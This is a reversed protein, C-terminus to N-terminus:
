LNLYDEFTSQQLAKARELAKPDIDGKSEISVKGVNDYLFQNTSNVFGFGDNFSFYAWSKTKPDFIDKSWKYETSPIKLQNLLTKALDTQSFVKNVIRPKSVAGGTWLMPIKFDAARAELEPFKHGHDGLIIVLTNNWWSSKQAEEIFAKLSQDSYRLSNFFLAEETDSEFISKLPVEYPQHSSLTLITSFFPKSKSFNHDNNFRQFVLHDHVGWKSYASDEPFAHVDYINQLDANFLYSKINAFETEGGYYFETQYDAKQFDKSLIPLKISKQPEKVISHTPQAPYGSFVAVLGKDTRDGSAYFNNFYIGQTKLSDFFPIVSQNEFRYDVTKATLSEWIIVLVNPKDTNLVHTTEGSSEYLYNLSSNIKENPLYTYPNTKDYTKNILSSLFNWTANVASINAFNNESFYVTSQNMPAIGFGGRIPIILSATMFLVVAVFPFPKIYNWNSIKKAIIRYVVFSGCIVLIIFSVILQFVPSSKVSAWAEKPTSLYNLPTADIRYKWVNYVELDVVVLFTLLFVLILTYSFLLGEFLAKKIWNSFGVLLFPIASLYAAMSMDMRIGNWFVGWIMELSLLKTDQIHYGLFIVRASLFFVVWFSFYILLFQVREKM